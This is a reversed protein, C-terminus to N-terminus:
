QENGTIKSDGGLFNLTIKSLNEHPKGRWHRVSKGYMTKTVRQTAFFLHSM